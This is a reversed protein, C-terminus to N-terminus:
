LESRLQKFTRLFEFEAFRHPWPEVATGNYWWTDREEVFISNDATKTEALLMPSVGGVVACILITATHELERYWQMRPDHKVPSALDNFYAEGSDHLVGAIQLAVSAGHERLYRAVLVSHQAVSYHTPCAGTYRCLLSLHHAIDEICVDSPKLELPNVMRGTFTRIHRGKDNANRLDNPNM